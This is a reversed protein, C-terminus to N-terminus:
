WIIRRDTAWGNASTRWCVHGTFCADVTETLAGDARRLGSLRQVVRRAAAAVAGRFSAEHPREGRRLFVRDTLKTLDKMVSVGFKNISIGKNNGSVGRRRVAHPLGQHLRRDRRGDGRRRGVDPLGHPPGERPPRRLRLLPDAVGVRHTKKGAELAQQTAMRKDLERQYLKAECFACRM